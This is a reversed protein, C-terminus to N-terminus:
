KTWGEFGQQREYEAIDKTIDVKQKHGEFYGVENKNADLFNGWAAEIEKVGKLRDDVKYDEIDCCDQIYDLIEDFSCLVNKTYPVFLINNPKHGALICHELYDEIDCYYNEDIVFPGGYEVFEANNYERQRREASEKKLCDLCKCYVHARNTKCVTCPMDKACCVRAAHENKGYNQGCKKCVWCEVKKLEAADEYRLTETM